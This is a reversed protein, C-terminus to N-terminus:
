PAIKIVLFKYKPLSTKVNTDLFFFMLNQVNLFGNNRSCTPSDRPFIKLTTDHVACLSHTFIYNQHRFFNIIIIYSFM